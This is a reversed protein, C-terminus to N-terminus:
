DRKFAENFLLFKGVNPNGNLMQQKKQFFAQNAKLSLGRRNPDLFNDFMRNGQADVFPERKYNSGKKLFIFSGMVVARDPYSNKLEERMIEEETPLFIDKSLPFYAMPNKYERMVKLIFDQALENASKTQANVM